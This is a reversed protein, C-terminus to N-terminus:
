RPTAFLGMQVQKKIVELDPDNLVTASNDEVPGAAVGSPQQLLHIYPSFQIEKQSVQTSEKGPPSVAYNTQVAQGTPVPNMSGANASPTLGVPITTIPGYNMPSPMGNGLASSSGLGNQLPMAGYATPVVPPNKRMMMKKTHAKKRRVFL